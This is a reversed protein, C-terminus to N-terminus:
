NSKRSRMYYATGGVGALAAIGAAAAYKAWNTNGGVFKGNTNMKKLKQINTHHQKMMVKEIQNINASM